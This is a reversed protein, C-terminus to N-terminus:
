TIICKQERRWGERKWEEGEVGGRLGERRWGEGGKRGEM